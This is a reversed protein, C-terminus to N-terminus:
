ADPCTGHLGSGAVVGRTLFRRVALSIASVSSRTLEAPIVRSPADAPNDASRVWKMSMTCRRLRLIELAGVVADNLRRSRVCAGKRAVGKVTTNDVVVNVRADAVSAPLSRVVKYLAEAELENIHGAEGKDWRAGLISAESTAHDVVVGGWGDLSADVFATLQPAVVEALIKRPALVEGIWQCLSTQVCPSVNVVDDTARTGRNLSNTVRRFFKLAFWFRGPFVGAVASAHLLRGGLDHARVVGSLAYRSEVLRRKMKTSVSVMGRGHDWLVGIFEYRTSADVSDSPKWTLVCDRATRDLAETARLVLDRPGAYRINDIWVDVRVGEIVRWERTVYDPHGAAVAAVTDMLEPACTHGMPLRVLEWWDGESDMFRFLHRADEPIEIAYFGTKFDRTSGCEERVADLYRSIHGLPVKAEYGSDCAIENAEVTWLIFRQRDRGEKEELVTFPVNRM